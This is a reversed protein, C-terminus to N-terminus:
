SVSDGGQFWSAVGKGTSKPLEGGDVVPTNLPVGMSRFAKADQLNTVSMKYDEHNHQDIQRGLTRGRGM